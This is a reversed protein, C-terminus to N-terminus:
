LLTSRLDPVPQNDFLRRLFAPELQGPEYGIIVKFQVVVDFLTAVIEAIDGFSPIIGAEPNAIEDLHWPRVIRHELGSGIFEQRETRDLANHEGDLLSGFPDFDM